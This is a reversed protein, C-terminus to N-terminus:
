RMQTAMRVLAVEETSRYWYGLKLHQRAGRILVISGIRGNQLAHNSQGGREVALDDGFAHLGHRVAGQQQGHASFQGLAIANGAGHGGTGQGAPAGIPLTRRKM